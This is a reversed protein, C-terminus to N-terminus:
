TTYVDLTVAVANAPERPRGFRLGFYRLSRPKTSVAPESLYVVRQAIGRGIEWLKTGRSARTVAM